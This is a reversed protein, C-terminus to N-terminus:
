QAASPGPASDKLEVVETTGKDTATKDQSNYVQPDASADIVEVYTNTDDKNTDNTIPAVQNKSTAKKKDDKKKSDNKTAKNDEGEEGDSSDSDLKDEERKM